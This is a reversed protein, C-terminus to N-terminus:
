CGLNRDTIIVAGAGDRSLKAVRFVGKYARTLDVTFQDVRDSAAFITPLRGRSLVGVAEQLVKGSVFPVPHGYSGILPSQYRQHNCTSANYFPPGGPDVDGMVIVGDLAIAYSGLDNHSHAGNGGGKITLDLRASWDSPQNLPQGRMIVTDAAKFYTNPSPDLSQVQFPAKRAELGCTNITLQLIQSHLGTAPSGPQVDEMKCAWKLNAVLGPSFKQNFGSDAFAALVGGRMPFRLPFLAATSVKSDAFLDLVNNTARMLVEQLLALRGFGFNFHWVGEKNFGEM